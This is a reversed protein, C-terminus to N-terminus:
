DTAIFYFLANDGHFIKQFRCDCRRDRKISISRPPTPTHISRNVRAKLYTAAMILWPFLKDITLSPLLSVLLPPPSNIELQHVWPQNEAVKSNSLKEDSEDERSEDGEVYNLPLTRRQFCFAGFRLCFSEWCSDGEKRERIQEEERDGKKNLKNYRVLFLKEERGFNSQRDIRACFLQLDFKSFKFYFRNDKSLISSDVFTSFIFLLPLYIREFRAFFLFLIDEILLHTLRKTM